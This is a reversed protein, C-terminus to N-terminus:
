LLQGGGVRDDLGWFDYSSNEVDPGQIEKYVIEVPRRNVADPDEILRKLQNLRLEFARDSKSNFVKVLKYVAQNIKYSL